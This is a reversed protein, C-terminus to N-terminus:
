GFMYYMKKQLNVVKSKQSMEEFYQHQIHRELGSGFSSFFPMYEKLICAVHHTFNKTLKKYDSESPLLTMTNISSKAPVHPTDDYSSLDIWDRDAYTQFYHLSKMLSDIRYETSKVNKDLNDGTLKYTKM